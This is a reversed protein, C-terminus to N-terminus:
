VQSHLLCVDDFDDGDTGLVGHTPYACFLSFAVEHALTNWLRELSVAGAVNGADWLLAVMEGFARVARGRAAARRVVEGVVADFLAPDPADSVMFAALTDAADLLLVHG